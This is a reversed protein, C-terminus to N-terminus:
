LKNNSSKVLWEDVFLLVASGTIAAREAFRRVKDDDLELATGVAANSSTRRKYQEDVIGARHVILHRTVELECLVSDSLMGILEESDVFAAQFANKIGPAGTFDFKSRLITGMCNRLDFDYKAALGVSIHKSSIEQPEDLVASLARQALPVPNTNLAAV